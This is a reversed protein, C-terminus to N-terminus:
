FKFYNLSRECVRMERIFAVDRKGIKFFEVRCSAVEFFIGRRLGLIYWSWTAHYCSYRGYGIYMFRPPGHLVRSSSLCILRRDVDAM